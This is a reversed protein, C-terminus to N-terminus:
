FSYFKNKIEYNKKVLLLFYKITFSVGMGVAAVMAKTLPWACNHCKGAGDDHFLAWTFVGGLNLSNALDARIKISKANEYSIWTTGKYMYPSAAKEDFFMQFGSNANLNM